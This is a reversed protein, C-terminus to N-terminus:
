YRGVLYTVLLAFFKGEFQLTPNVLDSSVILMSVNTDNELEEM